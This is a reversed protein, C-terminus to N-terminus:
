GGEPIIGAITVHGHRIGAARPGIEPRQFADHGVLALDDRIHCALGEGLCGLYPGEAALHQLVAILPHIDGVIRNNHKAVVIPTIDPTKVSFLPSSFDHGILSWSVQVCLSLLIYGAAASLIQVSTSRGSSGPITNWLAM